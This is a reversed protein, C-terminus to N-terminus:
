ESDSGWMNSAFAGAARMNGARRDANIRDAVRGRGAALGAATNMGDSARGSIGRGIGILDGQLNTNQEDVHRRTQNGANVADTAGALGRRAKIAARQESSVTQGTRALDREMSEEAQTHGERTLSIARDAEENGDRQSREILEDEIPKFREQFDDWDARLMAAQSKEPNQEAFEAPYQGTKAAHARNYRRAWRRLRRPMKAVNKFKRQEGVSPREGVKEIIDPDLDMGPDVNITKM